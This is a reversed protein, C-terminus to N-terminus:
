RGRKKRRKETSRAPLTRPRLAHTRPAPKPPDGRRCAECRGLLEHVHSTLEFGYHAAVDRQLAELAEFHFEVITGCET